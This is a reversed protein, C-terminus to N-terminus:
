IYSTVIKNDKLQLIIPINVMLSVELSEGETKLKMFM